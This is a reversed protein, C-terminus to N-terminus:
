RVEEEEDEEEQEAMEEQVALVASLIGVGSGEDCSGM